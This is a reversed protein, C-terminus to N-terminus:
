NDDAGSGNGKPVDNAKKAVDDASIGDDDLKLKSLKKDMQNFSSNLTFIIIKLM